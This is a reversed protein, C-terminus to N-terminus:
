HAAGIAIRELLREMAFQEAAIKRELRELLASLEIRGGATSPVASAKTQEAREGSTAIRPGAGAGAIRELLREMAISEATLKRDLRELLANLEREERPSPSVTESRGKNTTMRPAAKGGAAAAAPEWIDPRIECRPIGLRDAILIARAVPVRGSKRRWFIVTSHDVGAIDALKVVGGAAEIIEDLTM